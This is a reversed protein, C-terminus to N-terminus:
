STQSAPEDLRADNIIHVTPSTPPYSNERQETGHPDQILVKILVNVGPSLASLTANETIRHQHHHISSAPRQQPGTFIGSPWIHHHRTPTRVTGYRTVATFLVATIPIM